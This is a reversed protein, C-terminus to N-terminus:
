AKFGNHGIDRLWKYETTAPFAGGKQYGDYGKGIKKPIRNATVPVSKSEAYKEPLTISTLQGLVSSLKGTAKLCLMRAMNNGGQISWCARRGKMRNGIISFVNSEMCGLHRYTKDKPASPFEMKRRHIETLGERNSNFYTYLRKLENREWENDSSNIYAEICDMMDSIEGSYLLKFLLRRKEPDHVYSIIAKNRHYPDLQFYVEENCIGNRIWEAGDGNLFHLEIEDVCYTDAIIGDKRRLFRAADEFNACAVKNTLRYRSKGTREAGDYAIALKMEKSSGYKKRSEGQLKLWIGDQEEFLVKSKLKGNGQHQTAIKAQVSEREDVKEGLAQVVCWAATHSIRQGTMKSVTEAANRYSSECSAKVIYESMLGSFFGSGSVGIEEDLLYVYRKIGSEDIEEYISRCFEVEGMITKLTTKRKGKNRYQKKDRNKKLDEDPKELLERLMWCGQACVERYVKEEIEKFEVKKEAISM